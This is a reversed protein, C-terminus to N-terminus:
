ANVANTPKALNSFISRKPTTPAEDTPMETAAAPEAAPEPKKFLKSVKTNTPAELAAEAAEGDNTPEGAAAEETTVPEAAQPENLETVPAALEKTVTPETPRLFPKAKPTPTKKVEVEPTPAEQVTEETPDVIDITATYGADGRTAKLDVKIERENNVSIQALIHNRIALKIEAENIIIQM